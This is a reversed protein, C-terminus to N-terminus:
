RVTVPRVCLDYCIACKLTDDECDNDDHTNYMSIHSAVQSGNGGGQAKNIKGGRPPLSSKFDNKKNGKSIRNTKAATKKCKTGNAQACRKNKAETPERSTTSTGVTAKWKGMLLEQRKIAKEHEVYRVFHFLLEM